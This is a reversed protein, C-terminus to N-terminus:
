LAGAAWLAVDATQTVDYAAAGTFLVRVLLGGVLVCVAIWLLQTHFNGHAVFRELVFPLVLGLAVLGGWFLPALDGSIFARAANATGEGALLAWVLYAAICVAEVVIVISDACTLAHLTRDFVQRSNSFAAGVLVVAIGCSLSSCTFVAPLLWTQWFLVSPLSQLLIGTYVMTVAGAAVGIVTTIIVVVEPLRILDFLSIASMVGAVVITVTLAYAGVTLASAHPSFFLEIVRDVRGLDVLLCLVGLCLVVLALPWCRSFADFPMASPSDQKRRLLGMGDMRTAFQRQSGTQAPAFAATHTTTHSRVIGVLELVSLVLVAGAGTGGLFLYAVITEDFM